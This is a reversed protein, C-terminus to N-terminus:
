FDWGESARGELQRHLVFNPGSDYLIHDPPYDRGRGFNQFGLRELHEIREDGVHLIACACGMEKARQLRVRDLHLSCGFGRYDPHTVLRNMSAIPAKLPSHFVCRYVEYEPVDEISEHVSFRAAAILKDGDFIGFHRAESDFEDIWEDNLVNGVIINQSWAAVRLKGIDRLVSDDKVNLEILNKEINTLM